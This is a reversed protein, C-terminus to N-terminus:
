LLADDSDLGDFIAAAVLLADDSDIVDVAIVAAVV